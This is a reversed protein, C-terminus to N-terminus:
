RERDRRNRRIYDRVEEAEFRARSSVFTPVLEGSRVLKYLTSRTIALAACVDNVRLLPEITTGHHTPSHM